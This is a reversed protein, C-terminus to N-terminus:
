PHLLAAARQLIAPHRAVAAHQFFVDSSYRSMDLDPLSIRTVGVTELRALLDEPYDAFQDGPWYLISIQMVRTLQQCSVLLQKHLAQVNGTSFSTKVVTSVRYGSARWARIVYDKLALAPQVLVLKSEPAPLRGDMWEALELTFVLAGLSFAVYTPNRVELSAALYSAFRRRLSSLGPTTNVGVYHQQPGNYSFQRIESAPSIERFYPTAVM